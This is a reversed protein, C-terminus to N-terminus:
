EKKRGMCEERVEEERVGMLVEEREARGEEGERGGEGKYSCGSEGASRRRGRYDKWGERGGGGGGGREVYVCVGRGRKERRERGM